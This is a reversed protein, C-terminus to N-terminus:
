IKDCVLLGSPTFLSSATLQRGGGTSIAYRITVASHTSFGCLEKKRWETQLELM